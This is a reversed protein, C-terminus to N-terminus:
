RSYAGPLSTNFGDILLDQLQNSYDAALQTSEPYPLVLDDADGSASAEGVGRTGPSGRLIDVQM